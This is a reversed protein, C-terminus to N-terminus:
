RPRPRPSGGRCRHRATTSRQTRTESRSANAIARRIVRSSPIRAPSDHPVAISAASSSTARIMRSSGSSPPRRPRRRSGGRRRGSSGRSATCRRTSAPWRCATRRRAGDVRTPSSSGARWWPWGIGSHHEGARRVADAHRDVEELLEADALQRDRLPGLAVREFPDHARDALLGAPGRTDCGSTTSRVTPSTISRGSGVIATVAVTSSANARQGPRRGRQEGHAPSGGPRTTVLSSRSSCRAWRSQGSPARRAAAPESPPAM